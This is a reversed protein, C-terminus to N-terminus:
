KAPAEKLPKGKSRWGTLTVVKVYSTNDLSFALRKKPPLSTMVIDTYQINRAQFETRMWQAVSDAAPPHQPVEDLIRQIKAFHDPNARAVAELNGPVDLDIPGRAYSQSASGLFLFAVGITVFTRIV